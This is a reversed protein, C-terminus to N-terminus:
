SNTQAAHRKHVNPLTSAERLHKIYLRRIEEYEGIGRLICEPEYGADRLKAAFSDEEGAMDNVAHDGAVLMFPLLLVRGKEYERKEASANLKEIVHEITISGEVTAIYIQQGSLSRLETELRSYFRDAVNVSGHGMLIVPSNGAEAKIEKWLAKATDKCDAENDLLVRALKLDMFLDRCGDATQKMRNNEIGDIIHTPLIIVQTIGEQQMQQLAERVNPIILNDRRKLISRVINSSYAQYISRDPFVERVTQVLKEINKERTEKHTTGFSVILIGQNM